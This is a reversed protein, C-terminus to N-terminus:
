WKFVRIQPARFPVCTTTKLTYSFTHTPSCIEALRIVVNFKQPSAVSGTLHPLFFYCSDTWPLVQAWKKLLQLRLEWDWVHYSTYSVQAQIYTDKGICM